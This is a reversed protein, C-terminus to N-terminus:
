QNVAWIEHLEPDDFPEPIVGDTAGPDTNRARSSKRSAHHRHMIVSM